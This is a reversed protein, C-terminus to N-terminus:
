QKDYVAVTNVAQGSANKGTGTITMTKGDGSVVSTQTM